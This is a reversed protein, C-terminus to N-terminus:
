CREVQYTQRNARLVPSAGAKDALLWQGRLQHPADCNRFAIVSVTDGVAVGRDLNFFASTPPFEVPVDSGRTESRVTLRDIDIVARAGAPDPKPAPVAMDPATRITLTPHPQGFYAQTIQGRIWVPQSLDYRGTFGHHALVLGPLLIAFAAAALPFPQRM